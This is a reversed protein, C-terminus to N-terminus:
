SHNPICDRKYEDMNAQVLREEMCDMPTPDWELFYKNFFFVPRQSRVGLQEIRGMDRATLICIGHVIKGGPCYKKRHKVQWMNIVWIFNDVIPMDYKGLLKKPPRAGKAQPHAYLSSYFHEEPAWVTGLYGHLKRSLPDYLLFHVFARSAAIFNMSKYIKIGKPPKKQRQHTLRIGRKGLVFKYKFRQTWVIPTLGHLHLATYGKLKLLSKVIERNTKVPVERGCLNIVYRWRSQPYQELDRMCQLQANTISIHGYYVKVPKRVVFVNDLCKAVATFFEKFRKGQRADPHICYLNQPRYISKLLRLVQGANTYVVFIYAIPFDKEIQSVYINNNFEDRIEDCSMKKYKLAFAEWPRSSKWVKLQSSLKSQKMENWTSRRLKQCDRKLPKGMQTVIGKGWSQFLSQVSCHPNSNISDRQVHGMLVDRYVEETSKSHSQITKNRAFNEVKAQNEPLKSGPEEPDSRIEEQNDPNEEEDEEEDDQDGDPENDNARDSFVVGFEGGGASSIEYAMDPDSGNGVPALYSDSENTKREMELLYEAETSNSQEENVEAFENMFADEDIVEDKNSEESALPTHYTQPHSLYWPLGTTLDPPSDAPLSETKVAVDGKELLRVSSSSVAGRSEATQLQRNENTATAASAFSNTFRNENTPTAGTAGNTTFRGSLLGDLNGLSSSSDAADKNHRYHYLIITTGSSSHYYSEFYFYLVLGTCM